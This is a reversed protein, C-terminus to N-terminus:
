WTLNPSYLPQLSFVSATGNLLGRILLAVFVVIILVQFIVFIANFSVTVKVQFINALTFFLITLVIWCWSPVEPFFSSLYIQSTLAYLMPLFLYDCLAAWGVLFGISPNFTQQAYTYASGAGPF